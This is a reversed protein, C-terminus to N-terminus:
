ELVLKRLRRPLPIKRLLYWLEILLGIFAIIFLLVNLPRYIPTLSSVAHMTNQIAHFTIAAFLGVRAYTFGLFIGLLAPPLVDMAYEAMSHSKLGHCVGFFVAQLLLPAWFSRFSVFLVGAILVRFILEENTGTGVADVVRKILEPQEEKKLEETSEFPTAIKKFGVYNKGIYDLLSGSSIASALFLFTMFFFLRVPGRNLRNQRLGSMREKMKEWDEPCIRSFLYVSIISLATYILSLHYEELGVTKAKFLYGPAFRLIFFLVVIAKAKNSVSREM